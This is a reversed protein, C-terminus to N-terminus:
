DGFLAQRVLRVSAQEPRCALLYVPVKALVADLNELAAELCAKDWHPLFVHPLLSAMYEGATLRFLSNEESQRLVIVASLPAARNLCYPSSGHWPSGHAYVADKAIRLFVKDGNVIRAGAYQQWLEAQTTKGIGSPGTFVLGREGYDVFAGHLLITQFFCLRSYVAALLTTSSADLHEAYITVKSWDMNAFAMEGPLVSSRLIHAAPSVSQVGYCTDTDGRTTYLSIEQCPKNKETLFPAFAGKLAPSSVSFVQAAISYFLEM